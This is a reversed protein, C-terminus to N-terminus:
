DRLARDDQTFEMIRRDFEQAQRVDKLRLGRILIPDARYGDGYPIHVLTLPKESLIYYFAKSDAVPTSWVREPTLEELSANERGIHERLSACQHQEDAWRGDKGFEVCSQQDASSRGTWHGPVGANKKVTAM